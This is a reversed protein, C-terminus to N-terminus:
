DTNRRVKCSVSKDDTHQRLNSSLTQGATTRVVAVCWVGLLKQKKYLNADKKTDEARYQYLVRNTTSSRRQFTVTEVKLKLFYVCLHLKLYRYNEIVIFTLCTILIKKAPKFRSKKLKLKTHDNRFRKEAAGFSCTTFKSRCRRAFANDIDDSIKHYKLVKGTGCFYSYITFLYRNLKGNLRRNRSM